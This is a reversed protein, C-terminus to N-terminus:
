GSDNDSRPKSLEPVNTTADAAATATTTAAATTSADYVIARWSNTASIQQKSDCWAAITAVKYKATFQETNIATVNSSEIFILKLLKNSM